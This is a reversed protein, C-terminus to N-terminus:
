IAEQGETGAEEKAPAGRINADGNNYHHKAHCSVCLIRINEKSNNARNKDEHHVDLRSATKGCQECKREKMSYAIRQYYPESSGDIFSSPHEIMLRSMLATNCASSCTKRNYNALPRFVVGCVVCKNFRIQKSAAEQHTRRTINNRILIGKVRTHTTSKLTAIDRLSKGSLYLDIIEKHNLNNM